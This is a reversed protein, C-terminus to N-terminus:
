WQIATHRLPSLATLFKGLDPCPMILNIFTLGVKPVLLQMSGFKGEGVDGQLHQVELM